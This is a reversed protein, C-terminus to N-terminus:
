KLIKVTDVIKEILQKEGQLAPREQAAQFFLAQHRQDAPQSISVVYIPGKTEEETTPEKGDGDFTECVVSVSFQLVELGSGNMYARKGVVGSAYTSGVPGDAQFMVKAREIAFEEFSSRTSERHQDEVQTLITWPANASRLVTEGTATEQYGLREELM